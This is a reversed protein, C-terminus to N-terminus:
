GSPLRPSWPTGSDELDTWGVPFGMVLEGFSPSLYIPDEECTRLGESMKAGRFYPSGRFRDRGSGKYENAGMTPLLFSNVNVGTTQESGTLEYLRCRLMLVARPLTQLFTLEASMFSGQSMRLSSTDPDYYAFSEQSTRGCGDTM